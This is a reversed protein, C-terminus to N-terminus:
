SFFLPFVPARASLARTEKEGDKIKKGLIFWRHRGFHAALSRRDLRRGDDRKRKTFSFFLFFNYVAYRQSLPSFFFIFALPIFSHIGWVNIYIYSSSFSCLVLSVLLLDNKERLSRQTLNENSFNARACVNACTECGFLEKTTCTEHKNVTNYQVCYLRRSPFEM